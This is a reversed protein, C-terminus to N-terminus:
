EYRSKRKVECKKEIEDWVEQVVERMDDILDNDEIYQALADIRGSFNFDSCDITGAKNKSWRGESTLYDICSGTDDIGLSPYFPIEVTRNRGSARNKKIKIRLNTGVVRDKKNVSKKIDLGVSSWLEITAYFTLAHGGSRTKQPQFPGAGINDRTQNLIILISGSDRLGPIIPRLSSSNVKAKGDGYSGTPDEGKRVKKKNASFKDQEAISGLGDMSDLVYIFPKGEEIVDDLNYYFEEITESYMPEGGKDLSPPEIRDALRQGFFKVTDMLAGGEVDDYILRYKNFESNITAEALCTRAFFTKGSSSDGVWFYYRGKVFGGERFGTCGLNILTSGTSLLDKKSFVPEVSRPSTLSKKIDETESV